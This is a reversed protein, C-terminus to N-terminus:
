QRTTTATSTSTTTTVVPKAKSRPKYFIKNPSQLDIYDVLFKGSSDKGAFNSSEILLKLNQIVQALDQSRNFLIKGGNDFYGETVGGGLFAVSSVAFGERKLTELFFQFTKFEETPLVGKGVPDGGLGGGYYRMFVVGSFDPAKAFVQGNKDLFFCRGGDASSYAEGCWLAYPRKEAVSVTIATLDRKGVEVKEVRPFAAAIAAEVEARPYFLINSKPILYFYSGSIKERVVRQLDETSIASNGETYARVITIRENRLLFFAGLLVLLSLIGFFGIKVFFVKRRRQALRSSQVNGRSPIM